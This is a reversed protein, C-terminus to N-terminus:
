MLESTKRYYNYVYMYLLVMNLVELIYVTFTDLSILLISKKGWM